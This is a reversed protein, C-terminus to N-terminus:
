SKKNEFMEGVVTYGRLIAQIDKRLKKGESESMAGNEIFTSIYGDVDGEKIKNRAEVMVPNNNTTLLNVFNEPSVEDEM